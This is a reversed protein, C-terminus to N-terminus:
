KRVRGAERKRVSPFLRECVFGCFGLFRWQLFSQPKGRMRREESRVRCVFVREYVLYGEFGCASYKTKKKENPKALTKPGENEVMHFLPWIAGGPVVPEDM